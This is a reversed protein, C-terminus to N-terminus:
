VEKIRRALSRYGYGAPHIKDQSLEQVKIEITKDGNKSALEEVIKRQVPKISKSPLIWVVQGTISSRLKELAELTKIQKTDNTGLSIITMPLKMNFDHRKVFDESNIGSKANAKCEHMVNSLGYAISDGIILCELM